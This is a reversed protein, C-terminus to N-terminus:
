YLKVSVSGGPEVRFQREITYITEKSSKPRYIIRYRGPQLAIVQQTANEDLNCVWKLENEDVFIAGYGASNSLISALGPQSIEITTTHSQSVSIDNLYIRPLTLIELDYKGVLYKHPTNFGQVNLTQMKEKQRVIAKLSKYDNYGSVKINLLGQPADVAIINHIGPTLRISDKVVQPVTHVVLRYTGLPDVPITDPNGRHNLTHVYNYRIAGTYNDYLTYSVNTENPKGSVDLLNVQATTSNLAQSIVVNLINKFSEENFADYYNGVCEFAKKVEIGLGMGIVFPKLVINNKQLALSVACPDGDCEEIGDTILVIINKCNACPPFDNKTQELSYAILTTGKPEIENIRTKIKNSNRPAFPVELKTDQCNRDIKSRVHSQHGYARLALEINPVNALSDMLNSLLKKAVDIKRGTEWTGYMSQSADFVFLIRTKTVNQNKQAQAKASLLCFSIVLTSFLTLSIKLFNTM